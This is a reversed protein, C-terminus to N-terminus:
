APGALSSLPVDAYPISAPVSDSLQGGYTFRKLPVDRLTTYGERARREMEKEALALARDALNQVSKRMPGFLSVYRHYLTEMASRAQPGPAMEIAVRIQFIGHEIRRKFFARKPGNLLPNQSRSCYEYGNMYVGLARMASPGLEEYMRRYTDLIIQVQEDHTFHLSQMTNGFLHYQSPDLKEPVRNSERLRRFLATGPLASLTTLQVTTPELGILYDIDEQINEKTQCDDGMIWSLQPEIGVESLGRILSKQDAEGKKRQYSFKSEVGTWVEGVGNLLLEEPDWRSIAKITGFALYTMTNLGYEADEQILKGIAKVKDKRLLLEEDMVFVHKMFSNNAYYWKMSEVIEAPTMVDVTQGNTYASTACFECKWVCGLASLLYGAQVGSDFMTAVQKMWPIRIVEVPLHAQVSRDLPEGLLKRMFKVGDGTWCVYDVGDRIHHFQPENLGLIGYGGLIIKTDPAARRIVPIMESLRDMDIVKCTIALYDYHCSRLEDALEDLTPWELVVSPVSLNQALFHLSFCPIDASASFPGQDVIFRYSVDDISLFRDLFVHIPKCTSTFLVRM